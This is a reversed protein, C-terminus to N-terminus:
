TVYCKHTYVGVYVLVSNLKSAERSPPSALLTPCVRINENFFLGLLTDKRYIRPWPLRKWPSPTQNFMGRLLAKSKNKRHKDMGQQSAPGKQNTVLEVTLM